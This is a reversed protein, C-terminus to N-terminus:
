HKTSNTGTLKQAAELYPGGLKQAVQLALVASHKAALGKIYHEPDAERSPTVDLRQEVYLGGVKGMLEIAKVAAGVNGTSLAIDRVRELEALHTEANVIVRDKLLGPLATLWSRVKVNAEVESALRHLHAPKLDARPEYAERYSDSINKGGIRAEVYAAQKATLKPLDSAAPKAAPKKPRPM